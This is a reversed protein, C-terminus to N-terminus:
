SVGNELSKALKRLCQTNLSLPVDHKAKIGFFYNNIGPISSVVTVNSDCIPAGAYLITIIEDM